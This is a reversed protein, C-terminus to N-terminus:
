KMEPELSRGSTKKMEIEQVAKKIALFRHESPPHTKFIESESNSTM